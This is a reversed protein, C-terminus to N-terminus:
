FTAVPVSETRTSPTNGDLIAEVRKLVEASYYHAQCHDCVGIPANELIVVGRAHNLVERDLRQERVTGSCYECPFDYM